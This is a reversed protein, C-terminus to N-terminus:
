SAPSRRLVALLPHDAASYDGRCYLARQQDSRSLFFYEDETRIKGRAVIKERKSALKAFFEPFERHFVIRSKNLAEDRENGRRNSPHLLDGLFRLQAAAVESKRAKKLVYGEPGIAELIETLWDATSSSTDHVNNRWIPIIEEIVTLIRDYKPRRKNQSM